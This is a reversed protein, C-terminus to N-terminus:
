LSVIVFVRMYTSSFISFTQERKEVIKKVGLAANAHTVHKVFESQNQEMKRILNYMEGVIKNINRAKFIHKTPQQWRQHQHQQHAVYKNGFKSHPM